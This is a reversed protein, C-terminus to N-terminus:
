ILWNFKLCGKTCVHVYMKYIESFLHWTVTVSDRAVAGFLICMCAGNQYELRSKIIQHKSTQTDQFADVRVLWFAELFHVFPACGVSGVVIGLVDLVQGM